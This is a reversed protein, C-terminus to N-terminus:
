KEIMGSDDVMASNSKTFLTAHLVVVIQQIDDHESSHM